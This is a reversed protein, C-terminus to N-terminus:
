HQKNELSRMISEAEFIYDRKAASPAFAFGEMVIYSDRSKDDLIYQLFPGAMFDGKVEWTGRVELAPINDFSTHYVYPEYAEETILHSGELRGPVFAQGVSDRLRIIDKLPDEWDLKTSKPLSYFLLNVHGKQIERQFWVITSEQKFLTYASPIAVNIGFMDKLANQKLTSKNTRRQRENVEADKFTKIVGDSQSLIMEVLTTTDPASFVAMQQPAAYRNTDTRLVVEDSFGVWLIARSSRAFGTFVEPSMQKLDFLPEQQPLGLAPYAFAARIADGVESTWLLDPTIVTVTNINGSSQRVIPASTQNCGLIITAGLLILFRM